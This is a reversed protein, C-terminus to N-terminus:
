MLPDYSPFHALHTIGQATGYSTKKKLFSLLGFHIKRFHSTLTHVSNIQSLTLDVQPSKHAHYQVKLEQVLCPCRVVILAAPKTGADREQALSKRIRRVKGGRGTGM